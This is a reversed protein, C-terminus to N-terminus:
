GGRKGSTDGMRRSWRSFRRSHFKGEPTAEKSGAAAGIVFIVGVAIAVIGVPMLAVSTGMAIGGALLLVGVLFATIRRFPTNMWPVPDPTFTPEYM